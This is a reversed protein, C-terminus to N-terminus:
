GEIIKKLEEMNRKLTDAQSQAELTYEKGQLVILRAESPFFICRALRICTEFVSDAILCVQEDPHNNRLIKGSYEFAKLLEVKTYVSNKPINQDLLGQHLATLALEHYKKDLKKNM